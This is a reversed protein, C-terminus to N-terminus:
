TDQVELYHILPTSGRIRKELFGLSAVNKKPAASAKRRLVPEFFGDADGPGHNKSNSEIFM